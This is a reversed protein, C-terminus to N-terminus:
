NLLYLQQLFKYMPDLDKIYMYPMVKDTFTKRSKDLMGKNNTMISYLTNAIIDCLKVFTAIFDESLEHYMLVPKRESADKGRHETCAYIVNAADLGWMNKIDNYTLRADEISDHGYCGIKVTRWYSDIALPFKAVVLQKFRLAQKYVMHLHFSYKLRLDDKDYKQNSEIDHLNIFYEVPDREVRM